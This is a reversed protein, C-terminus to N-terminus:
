GLRARSRARGPLNMLENILATVVTELPPQQPGRLLAELPACTEPRARDLATAVYRWFRAPDNDGADLSLWAAPRRSRRAWDGLLTTKGFGAPTCVVTLGREMGQALRALLHPRPVFGARPVHFKTAVLVDWEPAADRLPTIAPPEAM